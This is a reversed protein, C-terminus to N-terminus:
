ESSPEPKHVPKINSYDKQAFLEINDKVFYPTNKGSIMSKIRTENQQAWKVFGDNYGNVESDFRFSDVDGADIADEYKSFEEVTPTIPVAVCRCQPHWGTFVFDKPYKGKLEDCIDAIPHNNSTIVEFGLVLPNNQWSVSDAKHYAMNNETRTMRMANKYSSRYVGRGPHYEKAAKSLVLNGHTDRVRRFLKNPERLYQRVDRSLSAASKGTGLGADIALEFEGKSKEIIKWVRESLNMGNTKREQFAELAEYNRETNRAKLARGMAKAKEGGSKIIKDIMDQNKADSLLFSDRTGSEIISTMRSATEEMVTQMRKKIEPFDDFSFLDGSGGKFGSSQGLHTVSDAYKNWLAEVKAAYANLNKMHQKDFKNLGSAM